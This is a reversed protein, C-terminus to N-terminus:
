SRYDRSLDVFLSLRVLIAREICIRTAGRVRWAGKAGGHMWLTTAADDWKVAGSNLERWIGGNMSIERGNRWKV